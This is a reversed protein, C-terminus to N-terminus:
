LSFLIGIMFIGTAIMGIAFSGLIITTILGYIM